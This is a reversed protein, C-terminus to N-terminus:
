QVLNHKKREQMFPVMCTGFKSQSLCLHASLKFQQLCPHLIKLVTSINDIAWFLAPVHAQTRVCWASCRFVQCAEAVPSRCLLAVYITTIVTCLSFKWKQINLSKILAVMQYPSIYRQWCCGWNVRALIRRHNFWRLLPTLSINRPLFPWRSPRGIKQGVRGEPRSVCVRVLMTTERRKWPPIEM